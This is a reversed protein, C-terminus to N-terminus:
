TRLGATPLYRAGRRQGEVRLFGLEVLKRLEHGTTRTDAKFLARYHTSRLWPDKQFHKRLGPVRDELLFRAEDLEASLYCMTVDGPTNFDRFAIDKEVLEQVRWKAENEDVANLKQYDVHSFGDPRAFLIRKQDSTVPLRRVVYGWGPGATAFVPEKLLTVSLMGSADDLVPERLFSATLESRMRSIGSGKGRMWGTDALVRALLPNRPAYPATGERLSDLTVEEVLAGPSRVEMRNDFFWVETERDGVEYDRHVIANLLAEQWAFDPYEALDEFFIDRLTESHRIQGRAIRRSEAVARALPPDASGVRTVNQERGHLPRIGTVRFVRVGASPHWRDAPARAFLLLAGNTVRWGDGDQEILGYHRLSETASLGGTPTRELFSHVLELDLDDLTAEPRIRTEHRDSNSKRAEDM